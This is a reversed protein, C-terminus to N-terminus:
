ALAMGISNYEKAQRRFAKGCPEIRSVVTLNEGEIHNYVRIWTTMNEKLHLPPGPNMGNFIVSYRSRCHTSINQGTAILVYEPNPHPKAATAAGLLVALLRLFVGM